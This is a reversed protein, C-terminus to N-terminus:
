DEYALWGEQQEEQQEEQQDEDPDEEDYEEEEEEFAHLTPDFAFGTSKAYAMVQKLTVCFRREKLYEQFSIESWGKKELDAERNEIYQPTKQKRNRLYGFCSACMKTKYEANIKDMEQLIPPNTCLRKRCQTFLRHAKIVIQCGPDITGSYPLKFTPYKFPIINKVRRRRRSSAEFVPEEEGTVDAKEEEEDEEEEEKTQFTEDQEKKMRKSSKFEELVDETSQFRDKFQDWNSNVYKEYLVFKNEQAVMRHYWLQAEEDNIDFHDTFEKLCEKESDMQLVLSHKRFM